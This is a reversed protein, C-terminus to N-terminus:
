PESTEKPTERAKSVVYAGISMAVIGGIVWMIGNVENSEDIDTKAKEVFPLIEDLM